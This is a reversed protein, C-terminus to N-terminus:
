SKTKKKKKKLCVVANAKLLNGSFCVGHLEHPPSSQLLSVDYFGVNRREVFYWVRRYLIIANAMKNTNVCASFIGLCDCCAEDCCGLINDDKEVNSKRLMNVSEASKEMRFFQFFPPNSEPLCLPSSFFIFTLIVSPPSTGEYRTCEETCTDPVVGLEEWGWSLTWTGRLSTLPEKTCINRTKKGNEVQVFLCNMYCLQISVCVLPAARCRAVCELVCYFFVVFFTRLIFPATTTNANWGGWTGAPHVGWAAEATQLKKACTKRSSNTWSPVIEKPTEQREEHCTQEQHTRAEEQCDPSVSVSTLNPPPSFGIEAERSCSWSGKFPFNLENWSCRKATTANLM